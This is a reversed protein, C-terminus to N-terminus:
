AAGAAGGSGANLGSRGARLGSRLSLLLGPAHKGTEHSGHDLAHGETGTGFHGVLGDAAHHTASAVLLGLGHVLLLGLLLLLFTYIFSVGEGITKLAIGIDGHALGVHIHQFFALFM